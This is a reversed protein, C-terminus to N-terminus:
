SPLGPEDTPMTSALRAGMNRALLMFHEVVVENPATDRLTKEFLELWQPVMWSRAQEVGAHVEMLKGQYGASRLAVGEWFKKMKALHPPWDQIKSAFIPGLVEHHQIRDYFTDVLLSIYEESVGIERSSRQLEARKKLVLESALEVRM